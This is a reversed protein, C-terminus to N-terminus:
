GTVFRETGADALTELDDDMDETTRSCLSPQGIPSVLKVSEIVASASDKLIPEGEEFNIGGRSVLAVNAGDDDRNFVGEDDAFVGCDGALVLVLGKVTGVFLGFIFM